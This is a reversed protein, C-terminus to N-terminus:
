MVGAVPTWGKRKALSSAGASSAQIGPLRHRGRTRVRPVPRPQVDSRRIALIARACLFTRSRTGCSLAARQGADGCGKRKARRLIRQRRAQPQANTSGPHFPLCSRHVLLPARPSLCTGDQECEGARSPHRGDGEGEGGNLPMVGRGTKLHRSGRWPRRPNRPAVSCWDADTCGNKDATKCFLGNGKPGSTPLGVIPDSLAASM